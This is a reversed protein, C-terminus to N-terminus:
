STLKGAKELWRGLPLDALWQGLLQWLERGRQVDVGEIVGLVLLVALVIAIIKVDHAMTSGLHAARHGTSAVSHSYLAVVVLLTLVGTSVGTIGAHQIAQRVLETLM